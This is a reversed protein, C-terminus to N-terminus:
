ALWKFHAIKICAHLHLALKKIKTTRKSVVCSTLCVRVVTSDKLWDVPQAGSQKLTDKFGVFLEECLRLGGMLM